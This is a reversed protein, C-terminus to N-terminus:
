YTVLGSWFFQITNLRTREIHMKWFQKELVKPLARNTQKKRAYSLQEVEEKRKHLEDLNYKYDM